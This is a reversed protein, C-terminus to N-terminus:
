HGRKKKYVYLIGIFIFLVALLDSTDLKLFELFPLFGKDIRLRNMILRIVGYNIFYIATIIGSQLNHKMYHRKHLWYLIGFNMLNLLSEIFFTPLFASYQEYGPLRHEPNIALCFRTGNKCPRGYLEQNFFNGWRGLAQALPVWIFSTDLFKMLNIERRKCIFYSVLLTILVAGQIAVGGDWINFMELPHQLLYELNHFIFILRAGILASIGLLGYDLVKLKDSYQKELQWIIISFGIGILLGYISFILPGINLQSPLFPTIM